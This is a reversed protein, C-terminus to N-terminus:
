GEKVLKNMEALEEDTFVELALTYLVEDEVLMHRRIKGVIIRLDDHFCKRIRYDSGSNIAEKMKKVHGRLDRHECTMTYVPVKIREKKMVGFVKEEMVEHPDWLECLRRFVHLLNPYNIVEGDMIADLEFLEREIGIHELKLAHIANM